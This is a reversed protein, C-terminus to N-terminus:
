INNEVKGLLEFKNKTFHLIGDDRMRCLEASMASRDISLYDALEQRNFPIEFASSKTQRAYSSLYSLLKERTTRRTIHEIKKILMSNKQAMNRIINRIVVTHFGCASSCTSIIKKCNILLIDSQEVAMISIPLYEKEGFSFAEGFSEPPDFRAIISRNGWFDDQVLHICGSLIVGVTNFKGGAMFVYDGKEYKKWVASLCNLLKDLEAKDIGEFLPCQSLLYMM